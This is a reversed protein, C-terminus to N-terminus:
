SSYDNKVSTQEEMKELGILKKGQQKALRYFYADLFTSKDGKRPVTVSKDLLM